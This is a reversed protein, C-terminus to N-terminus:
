LTHTGGLFFFLDKSFAEDIRDTRALSCLAERDFRKAFERSLCDAGNALLM